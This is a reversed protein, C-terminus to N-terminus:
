VTNTNASSLVVSSHNSIQVNDNSCNDNNENYDDQEGEEDNLSLSNFNFKDNKSKYKTSMKQLVYEPNFSKSRQHGHLNATSSLTQNHLAARKKHLIRKTQEQRDVLHQPKDPILWAIVHVTVYIM